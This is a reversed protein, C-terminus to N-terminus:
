SQSFLHVCLYILEEVVIARHLMVVLTSPSINIACEYFLM